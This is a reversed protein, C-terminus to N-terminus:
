RVAGLADKKKSPRGNVSQPVTRHAKVRVRPGAPFRVVVQLRDAVGLVGRYWSLWSSSWVAGLADSYPCSTSRLIASAASKRDRRACRRQSADNYALTVYLGDAHISTSQALCVSVWPRPHHM